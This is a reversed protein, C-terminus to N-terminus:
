QRWFVPSLLVIFTFIELRGILMAISLVWKAADNISGYTIAVEGLGPGVNALCGIVASWASLFDLGCAMLAMLLLNFVVAYMGVFGWVADIIRDPVLKHNLKLIFEGNPHILRNIERWGQKLLLLVRVSKIGGATSGACGGMLAGIMILVPLFLPWSSFVGTTFGTTSSLSIVHFIAEVISEEFSFLGYITLVIITATILLAQMGLYQLLEADHWYASIHAQRLALFHLSFNVSGLVMFLSAILRLTDSQYYGFNADHPAFGGTSVASFAYGIADFLTMGNLWFAMSCIITFGIYIAWLAKATEAIRPTLKTDKLMGSTEARFLQLGGIGLMPLIAVALVIIGMGGLFHLQQRYYLIARPMADLGSLVTAGTTTLGSTSEFFADALPIHPVKAIMFPLAGYLSLVTWFLVVIFFGDRPRLEDKNRFTILWLVFGSMFTLAASAIFPMYVAEDYWWAVALPPLHSLSFCLLLYSLVKFSATLQM